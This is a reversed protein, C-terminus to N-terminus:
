QWGSLPRDAVAKSFGYGPAEDVMSIERIELTVLVRVCVVYICVCMCMHVCVRMCGCVCAGCFFLPM